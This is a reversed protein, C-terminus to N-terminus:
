DVLSDQHHSDCNGFPPTEQKSSKTKTSINVINKVFKQVFDRKRGRKARFRGGHDGADLEGDVASANVLRDQDQAALAARAHASRARERKDLEPGFYVLFVRIIAPGGRASRIAAARV